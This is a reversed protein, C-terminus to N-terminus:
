DQCTGECADEDSNCFQTSRIVGDCTGWTCYSFSDTCWQGECPGECQSDNTNCYQLDEESCCGMPVGSCGDYNCYNANAVSQLFLLSFAVKTTFM